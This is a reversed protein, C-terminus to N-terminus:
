SATRVLLTSLAVRAGRHLTIGGVASGSADAAARTSM